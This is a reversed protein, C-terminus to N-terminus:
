IVDFFLSNSGGAVPFTQILITPPHEVAPDTINLSTLKSGSLNCATVIVTPDGEKVGSTVDAIPQAGLIVVVCDAQVNAGTLDKKPKLLDEILQKDFIFANAKASYYNGAIKKGFLQCIGPMVMDTDNMISSRKQLIVEAEQKSIPKGSQTSM